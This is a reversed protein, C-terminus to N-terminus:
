SLLRYIHFQVWTSNINKTRFNDHNKQSLMNKNISQSRFFLTHTQNVSLLKGDYNNGLYPKSPELITM